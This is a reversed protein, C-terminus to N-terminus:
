LALRMEHQRAVLKGGLSAMAQSAPDDEPVNGVSLPGAGAASRLLTSASAEDLAAIQIIRTSGDSVTYIAAGVLEGRQELAIARLDEGDRELKAIVPDARQWPEGSERHAAIWSRARSLPLAVAEDAGVGQPLSWVVLDRVTEFGLREYLALAPRNADIVELWLSRCGRAHALDVAAQMVERAYGKRRAAPVTGMGGIWADAGRVGVLAFAVPDGDVLVPSAALDIDNRDLHTAFTPEDLHMPVLYGSFGANFLERTASLELTEATIITTSM